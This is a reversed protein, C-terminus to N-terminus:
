SLGASGAPPPLLALRAFGATAVLLLPVWRLSLRRGMGDWNSAVLALALLLILPVILWGAALGVAGAALYLYAATRLLRNRKM